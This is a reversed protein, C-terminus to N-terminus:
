CVYSPVNEQPQIGPTQRLMFASLWEKASLNREFVKSLNKYQDKLDELIAEHQSIDRSKTALVESLWKMLPRFTPHKTVDYNPDEVFTGNELSTDAYMMSPANYAGYHGLTCPVIYWTKWEETPTVSPAEFLDRHVLLIHKDPSTTAYAETKAIVAKIYKDLM